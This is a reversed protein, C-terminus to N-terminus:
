GALTVQIHAFRRLKQRQCMGDAGRQPFAM